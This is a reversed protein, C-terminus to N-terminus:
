WLATANKVDGHQGSGTGLSVYPMHVGPAIEITPAASLAAALAIAISAPM